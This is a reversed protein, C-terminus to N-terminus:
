KEVEEFHADFFGDDVTIMLRPAFENAGFPMITKIYDPVGKENEVVSFFAGECNDYREIGYCAIVDM